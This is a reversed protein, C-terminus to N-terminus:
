KVSTRYRRLFVDILVVDVINADRHFTAYLAHNIVHFCLFIL